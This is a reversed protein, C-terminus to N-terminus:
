GLRDEAGKSFREDAGRRYLRCNGSSRGARHPLGQRECSRTTSEASTGGEVGDM